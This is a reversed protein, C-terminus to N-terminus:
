DSSTDGKKARRTSGSFSKFFCVSFFKFCKFFAFQIETKLWNEQLSAILFPHICSHTFWFHYIFEDDYVQGSGKYKKWPERHSFYNLLLSVDFHGQLFNWLTPTCLEDLYELMTALLLQEPPNSMLITWRPISSYIM